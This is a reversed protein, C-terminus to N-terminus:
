GGSTAPASDRKSHNREPNQAAVPEPHEDDGATLAYEEANKVAQIFDAVAQTVRNWRVQNNVVDLVTEYEANELALWGGIKTKRVRVALLQRKIGDMTSIGIPIGQANLPSATELFVALDNRYNMGSGDEYHETPEFGTRDEKLVGPEFNALKFRRM